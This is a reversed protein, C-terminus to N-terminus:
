FNNVQMYEASTSYIYIYISSDKSAESAFGRIRHAARDINRRLRYRATTRVLFLNETWYSRADCEYLGKQEKGRGEWIESLTPHILLSIKCLIARSHYWDYELYM